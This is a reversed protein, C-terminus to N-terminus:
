KKYSAVASDFQEVASNLTEEVDAGNRVDEWAQGMITSYEGFAPTVARPYATNAAEYAAIKMSKSANEDNVIEEQKDLRSPVDKNADLWLDSGEGLTFWKIFEAAKEKNKSQSSIGFYWSGTATAVKDEYGEFCPAYTCDIEDESTMNEPKIWTGGVMFVIKGAYFLDAMQTADYGRSSIGDNVINQYWTMANIWPETNVVGDLSYGDESINAGGMSNPLMNMEYIRSVQEFDLGVLGKSGDPDLTEQVKKGIEAVQEYTLRHEADNEPLELGAQDLLSKNYWLVQTSTNMPVAYMTDDWVGATYSAEDWKAKEEDTFYQDLPELYGSSGYKAVYTVDVSAVDFDANGSAFKTELVEFLDDFTYYETDVQTGTEEKYKDLIPPCLGEWGSDGPGQSIWKLTGGEEASVPVAMGVVMVTALGFAVMRRYKM